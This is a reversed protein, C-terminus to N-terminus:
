APKRKRKANSKATTKDQQPRRLLLEVEGRLLPRSKEMLKVAGYGEVDTNLYGLAM